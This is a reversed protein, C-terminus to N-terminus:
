FSTLWTDFLEVCFLEGKTWPNATVYEEVESKYSRAEEARVVGRIVAVGRLRVEEEFDKSPTEIDQFSIEPIITSGRKAILQNEKALRKLLRKWSETLQKEYGHALRKKLEAYREPLPEGGKGSLSAFVASIDGEQKTSKAHSAIARLGHRCVLQCTKPLIHHSTALM